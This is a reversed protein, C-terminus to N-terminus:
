IDKVVIEAHHYTDLEIIVSQVIDTETVTTKASKATMDKLQQVYECRSNAKTVM